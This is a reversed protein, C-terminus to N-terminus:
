VGQFQPSLAIFFLVLLNIVTIAEIRANPADAYMKMPDSMPCDDMTRTSTRASGNTPGLHIGASKWSSAKEGLMGVMDKAVRANKTIM